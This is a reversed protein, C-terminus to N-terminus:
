NDRTADFHVKWRESDGSAAAPEISDLSPRRQEPASDEAREAACTVSDCMERNAAGCNLFSDSACRVSRKAPSEALPIDRRFHNQHVQSKSFRRIKEIAKLICLSDIIIIPRFSEFDGISITM